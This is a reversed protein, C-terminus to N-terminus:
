LAAGASVTQYAGLAADVSGFLRDTEIAPLLGLDLFFDAVEESLGAFVLTVGRKEMRDHLEGLMKAGCYDIETILDFDVVLWQPASPADHILSLVECMFSEANAYCLPGHFTCVALGPAPMKACTTFSDKELSEM